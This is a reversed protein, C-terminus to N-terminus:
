YKEVDRPFWKFDEWKFLDDKSVDNLIRM